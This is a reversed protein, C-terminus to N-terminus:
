HKIERYKLIRAPIGVVIVYSPVNKTVVAGAGVVAEKGITIGPNIVANFGIWVDDEIIVPKDIIPAFPMNEYIYDHTLSTITTHTAILVRNGIKIGDQEWICIFSATSVDDGM